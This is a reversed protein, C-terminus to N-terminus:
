EEKSTLQKDRTAKTNERPGRRAKDKPPEEIAKEQEESLTQAQAALGSPMLGLDELMEVDELRITDGAKYLVIGAGPMGQAAPNPVVIDQTAQVNSMQPGSNLDEIGLV